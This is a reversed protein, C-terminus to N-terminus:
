KIEKNVRFQVFTTTTTDAYAKKISPSSECLKKFFASNIKYHREVTGPKESNLDMYIESNIEFNKPKINERKALSLVHRVGPIKQTDTSDLAYALYKKYSDVSAKLSKKSDQLSKIEQDIVAVRSEINALFKYCNDVKEPVLEGVVEKFQEQNLNSCGDDFDEMIRLLEVLTHM